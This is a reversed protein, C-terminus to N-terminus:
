AWDKGFLFFTVKFVCQRAIDRVPDIYEVYEMKAKITVVTGGNAPSKHLTGYWGNASELADLFAATAAVNAKKVFVEQELHIQDVPSRNGRDMDIFINDPTEQVRIRYRTAEMVYHRNYVGNAPDHLWITSGDKELVFKTLYGFRNAM